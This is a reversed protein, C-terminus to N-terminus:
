LLYFLGYIIGVAKELFSELENKNLQTVNNDDHHCNHGGTTGISTDAM